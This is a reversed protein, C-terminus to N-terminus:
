NRHLQLKEHTIKKTFIIKKTKSTFFTPTFLPIRPHIQKSKSPPPHKAKRFPPINTVKQLLLFYGFVAQRQLLLWGNRFTFSFFYVGGEDDFM